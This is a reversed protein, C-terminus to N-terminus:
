GGLPESVFLVTLFDVTQAEIHGNVNAHSHVHTDKHGHTHVHLPHDISVSLGMGAVFTLTTHTHYLTQSPYQSPTLSISLLIFLQILFHPTGKGLISSSPRRTTTHSLTNTRPTINDKHTSSRPTSSSPTVSSNNTHPSINSHPSHNNNTHPSFKNLTVNHDSTNIHLRPPNVAGPVPSISQTCPSISQSSPSASQHSSDIFSSQPSWPIPTLVNSDDISCSTDCNITESIMSISSSAGSTNVLPMHIDSSHSIDTTTSATILNNVHVNGSNILAAAASSSPPSSPAAIAMPSIVPPNNKKEGSSSSSGSTNRRDFIRREYPIEGSLIKEVRERLKERYHIAGKASYLTTILSNDIQLKKFFDRIQGNGGQRMMELQLPSWTDMHISRVFSVQVGLSRHKGACDLCILTGHNISAWDTDLSLCDCCKQNGPYQNIERLISPPFPGFSTSM